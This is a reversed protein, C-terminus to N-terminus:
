KKSTLALYNGLAFYANAEAYGAAIKSYRASESTDSQIASLKLLMSENQRCVETLQAEQRRQGAIIASQRSIITNMQSIFIDLRNIIEQHM